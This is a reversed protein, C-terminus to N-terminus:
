GCVRVDKQFYFLDVDQWNSGDMALKNWCRCTQACRCLSVIDLYSFVRFCNALPVPMLLLSYRLILEKPLVRNILAQQNNQSPHLTTILYM